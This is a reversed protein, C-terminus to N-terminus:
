VYSCFYRYACTKSGCLVLSSCVNWRRKSGTGNREQVPPCFGARLCSAESHSCGNPVCFSHTRMATGASIISTSGCCRSTVCLSGPLKSACGGGEFRDGGLFAKVRQEFPPQNGNFLDGGVVVPVGNEDVYDEGRRNYRATAALMTRGPGWTKAGIALQDANPGIPHGLGFGNHTFANYYQGDLFFRHTYVFPDIRTYETFAMWGARAYGLGVQFALKNAYSRRGLLGLNADDVLVTAHAEVGRLPRGVIDLAFLPNDQDLEAHEATKFPLVPVLYTLEPSRNAYVLMETFGFSLSPLARVNLRHLALYRPPGGLIGGQGPADPNEVYRVGSGLAGHLFTYSVRGTAVGAQVFPFYDADPALLLGDGFGAGVRVRQQAIEAHFAGMVARVSASSQDFQGDDPQVVPYYLARLAPDRQLVRPQGTIQVGNFTRSYFGVRDRYHGQLIAQGAIDFGGLALSDRASRYALTGTGEVAFRWDEGRHLYLYKETDRRHPLRVRGDGFVAETADEPEFFERRYTRLWAKERTAMSSSRTELSDLLRHVTRRDTPRYEHTYEPLHGEVRQAHLFSYVPHEAPVIEPQAQAAGAALLLAVLLGLRM